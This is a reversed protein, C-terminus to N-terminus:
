GDVIAGNNSPYAADVLTDETEQGNAEILSILVRCADGETVEYTMLMGAHQVTGADSGFRRHAYYPLASQLMDGLRLHGIVARPFCIRIASPGGSTLSVTLKGSCIAENMLSLILNYVTDFAQGHTLQFDSDTQHDAEIELTVSKNDRVFRAFGGLLEPLSRVIDTAAVQRRMGDQGLTCISRLSALVAAANDTAAALKDLGRELPELLSTKPLHGLQMHILDAQGSITSLRSTIEHFFGDALKRIIDIRDGAMRETVGGVGPILDPPMTQVQEVLPLLALLGAAAELLEKHDAYDIDQNFLGVALLKQRSGSKPVVLLIEAAVRDRKYLSRQQEELSQVDVNSVLVTGETVARDFLDDSLPSQREVRASRRGDLGSTAVQAPGRRPTLVLRSLPLREALADFLEQLVLGVPLRQHLARVLRAIILISDAQAM